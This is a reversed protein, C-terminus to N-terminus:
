FIRAGSAGTETAVDPDSGSGIAVFLVLSAIQVLLLHDDPDWMLLMRAAVCLAAAATAALGADRGAFYAAAIVAPYLLLFTYGQPPLRMAVSIGFAAIAFLAGGTLRLWLQQVRLPATTRGRVPPKIVGTDHRGEM